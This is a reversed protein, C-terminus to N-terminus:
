KRAVKGEQIENTQNNHSVKNYAEYAYEGSKPHNSCLGCSAFFNYM